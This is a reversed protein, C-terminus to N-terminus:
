ISFQDTKTKRLKIWLNVKKTGEFRVDKRRLFNNKNNCNVTYESCRLFGYFAFLLVTKFSASDGPNLHSMHLLMKMLHRKKLPRRIRKRNASGRKIGVLLKQYGHKKKGSKEPDRDGQYLAWSRVGYIYLNTYM